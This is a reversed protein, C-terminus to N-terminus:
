SNESSSAIRFYLSKLELDIYVTLAYVFILVGIMELSEECLVALELFLDRGHLEFHFGGIMEMGIAGAMYITGASVTLRRISVPLNLVFRFYILMVLVVFIGYPIVWAFYLLGSTSLATRLPENLKEHIVTTEDISLFLFIAALGLWHLYDREGKNRRAVAITSLLGSALLLQLTSFLTPINREHDLHFLSLLGFVYDHGLYYISFLVAIHALVLCGIITGLSVAIKTPTFTFTM